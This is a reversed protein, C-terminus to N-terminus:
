WSREQIIIPFQRFTAGSDGSRATAVFGNARMTALQQELERVLARLEAQEARAIEARRMWGDCQPFAFGTVRPIETRDPYAELFRQYEAEIEDPTM